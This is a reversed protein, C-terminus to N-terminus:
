TGKRAERRHGYRGVGVEHPRSAPRTRSSFPSGRRRAWRSQPGAVVVRYDHFLHEVSVDSGLIDNSTPTVCWELLLDHMRERLGFYTAAPLEVIRLVVGPYADSFEQIIPRLFTALAAAACGIRLEGGAPDALFEIDKIGQRLEDFVARTRKLLADGYMTCEVGRPRRDFLRVGLTHELDTIAESVSPQSVGLLAAAKAMSGHQVVTFFLHLDRLTLRRGIQSDTDLKISM